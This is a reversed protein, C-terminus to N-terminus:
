ARRKLGRVMRDREVAEFREIDAAADRVGRWDCDARCDDLLDIRRNIVAHLEDDAWYEIDKKM